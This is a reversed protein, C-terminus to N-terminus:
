AHKEGKKLKAVISEDAEQLITKLEKIKQFAEIFLRPRQTLNKLTMLPLRWAIEGSETGWNNQPSNLYRRLSHLGSFQKLILPSIITTQIKGQGEITPSIRIVSSYTQPYTPSQTVPMFTITTINTKENIRPRQFQHTTFNSVLMGHLDKIAQDNM